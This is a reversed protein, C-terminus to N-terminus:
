QNPIEDFLLINLNYLNQEGSGSTSNSSRIVAVGFM